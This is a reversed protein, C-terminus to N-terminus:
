KIEKKWPKYKEHYMTGRKIIDAAEQVAETPKTARLFVDGDFNAEEYLKIIDDMTIAALAKGYAALSRKYVVWTKDCTGQDGATWAKKYVDLAKECAVRTKEYAAWTPLRDTPIRWLINIGGARIKTDDEAYVKGVPQCLYFETADCLYHVADKVSKALHFGNSCLTNSKDPDPHKTVGMKHQYGDYSAKMGDKTAKIYYQQNM